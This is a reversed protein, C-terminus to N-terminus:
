EKSNLNKCTMLNIYCTDPFASNQECYAKAAIAADDRHTYVNSPWSKAMQDLATCRWMPRTSKGNVFAECSEKATKCSRPIKSQKKCEDFAKNVASIEYSSEVTWEKNEADFATCRWFNGELTEAALPSSIVWHAIFLTITLIKNM